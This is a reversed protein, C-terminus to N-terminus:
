HAEENLREAPPLTNSILTVNEVGCLHLARNNWRAECESRIYNICLQSRTCFSHKKAAPIRCRVSFLVCMHACILAPFLAVSHRDPIFLYRIQTSAGWQLRLWLTLYDKLSHISSWLAATHAITCKWDSSKWGNEIFYAAVAILVSEQTHWPPNLFPWQPLLKRM